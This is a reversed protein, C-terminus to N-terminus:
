FNNGILIERLFVKILKLGTPFTKATSVGGIRKGEITPIEKVKHRLKMARISMQYEVAFGEANIKLEKFKDKRIARFGNIADSLKGGFFLDALFTFARNGWARLPFAKDFDENKSQPLFRSAIAMDYGQGIIEKLKAADSPNENGDPSLFVLIDGRAIEAAIRFAEGRGRKDQLIVRIGKEKFFEITGDTSGPDIVFCEDFKDFPISEFLAKTGAAENFTLIVLSSKM